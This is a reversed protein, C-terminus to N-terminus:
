LWRPPKIKFNKANLLLFIIILMLLALWSFISYIFLFIIDVWGYNNKDLFKIVYRGFYYAIVYGIIYIIIYVM